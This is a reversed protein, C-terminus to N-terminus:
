FSLAGADGDSGEGDEFLDAAAVKRDIRLVVQLLDSVALANVAEAVGRWVGEVAARMVAVPVAGAADALLALLCETLRNIWPTDAAEEPPEDPGGPPPVSGGFAENVVLRFDLVLDAAADGGATHLVLLLLQLLHELAAAGAARRAAAAHAAAILGQLCETISSDVADARHLRARAPKDAAVKGLM